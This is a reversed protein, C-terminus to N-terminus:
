GTEQLTGALASRAEVEERRPRGPRRKAEVFAGLSSQPPERSIDGAQQMARAQQVPDIMGPIVTALPNPANKLGMLEGHMRNVLEKLEDVQRTQSALEARLKDIEAGQQETLAMAAADDLFVRAKVRLGQLGMARQCAIDSLNAIEEITQIGLSRLEMVQARDVVPWEEIPTGEATQELGKRFLEYERAWRNRHDDNVRQVPMTNPNGPLFIEVREENRFIPRGEQASALENKVPEMYFRPRVLNGPPVEGGAWSRTYATQM